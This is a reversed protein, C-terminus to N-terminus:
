CFVGVTWLRWQGSSLSAFPKVGASTSYYTPRWQIRSRWYGRASGTLVPTLLSQALWFSTKKVTDRIGLQGFNLQEELDRVLESRRIGSLLPPEANGRIYNSVTLAMLARVFANALEAAQTQANCNAVASEASSDALLLQLSDTFHPALEPQPVTLRGVAEYFRDRFPVEGPVVKRKADLAEYQVALIRLEYLPDAELLSWRATEWTMQQEPNRDDRAWKRGDPISLGRSGLDAGLEGGWFCPKVAVNRLGGQELRNRVHQLSKSYSEERVGTGHVVVLTIM